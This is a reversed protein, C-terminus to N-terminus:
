LGVVIRSKYSELKEELLAIAKAKGVGVTDLYIRDRGWLHFAYWAGRDIREIGFPYGEVMYTDWASTTDKILKM